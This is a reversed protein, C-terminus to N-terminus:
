SRVLRFFSNLDVHMIVKGIWQSHGYTKEPLGLLKLTQNAKAPNSVVVVVFGIGEEEESYRGGGGSSQHEM